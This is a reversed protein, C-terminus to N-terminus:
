FTSIYLKTFAARQQVHKGEEKNKVIGADKRDLNYDSNDYLFVIFNDMYVMYWFIYLSSINSDCPAFDNWQCCHRYAVCAVKIVDDGAVVFLVSRSSKM